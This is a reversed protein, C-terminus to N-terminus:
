RIKELYGRARKLFELDRAQLVKKDRDDVENKEIMRIAEDLDHWEM